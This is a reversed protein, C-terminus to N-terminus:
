VHKLAWAEIVGIGKKSGFRSHPTIFEKLANGPLFAKAAMWVHRSDGLEVKRKTIGDLIGLPDTDHMVLAGSESLAPAYNVIDGLTARFSHDADVMIIDWPGEKLARLVIDTKQSYGRWVEADYGHSSYAEVMDLLRQSHDGRELIDIARYRCERGFTEMACHLSVGAGSGIELYSEPNRGSLYELAPVIEEPEQYRLFLNDTEPPGYLM